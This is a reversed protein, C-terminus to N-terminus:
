SCCNVTSSELFRRYGLMHNTTEVLTFVVQPIFLAENRENRAVALLKGFVM